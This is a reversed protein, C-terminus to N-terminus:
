RILGLRRAEAAAADPTACGLAATAARLAEFATATAAALAETDAPLWPRGDRAALLLGIQQLSYGRSWLQLAILVPGHHGGPPRQIAALLADDQGSNGMPVTALPASADTSPDYM